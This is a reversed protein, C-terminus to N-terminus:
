EAGGKLADFAVKYIPKDGVYWVDNYKRWSDVTAIKKLAERLRKNEAKLREREAVHYETNDINDERSEDLEKQLADEIPRNNWQKVLKDDADGFDLYTLKAGCEECVISDNGKQYYYHARGGCFPCPKLLDTM